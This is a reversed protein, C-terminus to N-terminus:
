HYAFLCTTINILYDRTFKEPFNAKATVYESFSYVLFIDKKAIFLQITNVSWRDTFQKKTGFEGFNRTLEASSFYVPLEVASQKVLLRLFAEDYISRLTRFVAGCECNWQGSFDLFNTSQKTASFKVVSVCFDRQYVCVLCSTLSSKPTQTRFRCSTYSFDFDSVLGRSLLSTVKHFSAGYQIYGSQWTQYDYANHYHLCFTKLKDRSRM